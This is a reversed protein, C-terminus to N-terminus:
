NKGDSALWAFLDRIQAPSLGDLLGEPMLSIPLAAREAIDNAALATRTGAVDVLALSNATEDQIFGILQRKEEGPRPRLDLRFAMYDPLVSASPDIISLLLGARDARDIGTLDPGVQRGDGHLTHCSACVLAFV